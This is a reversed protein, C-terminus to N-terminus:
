VGSVENLLDAACWVAFVGAALTYYTLSAQGVDVGVVAANFALGIVNLLRM